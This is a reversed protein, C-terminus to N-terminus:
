PFPRQATGPIGGCYFLWFLLHATSLFCTFLASFMAFGSKRACTFLLAIGLFFTVPISLLNVLAVVGFLFLLAIGTGGSFHGFVKTVGIMSIRYLIITTVSALLALTLVAGAGWQRLQMSRDKGESNPDVM